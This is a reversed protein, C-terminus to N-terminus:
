HTPPLLALRSCCHLSQPFAQPWIPAVVNGVQARQCGECGPLPVALLGNTVQVLRCGECRVEPQWAFLPRDLRRQSAHILGPSLLSLRVGGPSRGGPDDLFQRLTDLILRQTRAKQSPWLNLWHHLVGLGLDGRHEVVVCLRAILTRMVQLAFLVDQSVMVVEEQM